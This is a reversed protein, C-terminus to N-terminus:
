PSCYPLFYFDLYEKLAAAEELIVAFVEWDSVRLQHAM